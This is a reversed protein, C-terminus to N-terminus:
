ALEAWNVVLTIRSITNTAVIKLRRPILSKSEVVVPTAFEVMQGQVPWSRSCNPNKLVHAALKGGYVLLSIRPQTDATTVQFRWGVTRKGKVVIAAGLEIM